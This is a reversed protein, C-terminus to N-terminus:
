AGRRRHRRGGGEGSERRSEGTPRSRERPQALRDLAWEIAPLAVRGIALLAGGVVAVAGPRPTQVMKAPRQAPLTPSGLRERPEAVEAWLLAGEPCAQICARCGTCRAEDVQARGQQLTLAGAECVAVCRGCGTCRDIDVCIM